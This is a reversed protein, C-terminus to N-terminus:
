GLFNFPIISALEDEVDLGYAIAILGIELGAARRFKALENSLISKQAPRPAADFGPAGVADCFHRSAKRLATLNKGIKTNPDITKLADTV